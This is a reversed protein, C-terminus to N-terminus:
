SQVLAARAAHYAVERPGVPGLWTAEREKLVAELAGRLRANERELTRAIDQVILWEGRKCAALLANTKPTDTTM